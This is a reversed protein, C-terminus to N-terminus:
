LLLIIQARLEQALWPKIIKAHNFFSPSNLQISLFSVLNHACATIRKFVSIIKFWCFTSKHNRHISVTAAKTSCMNKTHKNRLSSGGQTVCAGLPGSPCCEKFLSSGAQKKENNNHNSMVKYFWSKLSRQADIGEERGIVNCCYENISMPRSEKLFLRIKRFVGIHNEQHHVHINSCYTCENLFISSTLVWDVAKLINESCYCFRKNKYFCRRSHTPSNSAIFVCHKRIGWSKPAECIYPDCTTKM